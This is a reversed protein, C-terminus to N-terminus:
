PQSPPQAAIRQWGGPCQKVYPYYGDPNHCYYWDNSQTQVPAQPPNQEIYVPPAAPAVVVPPYPYSYPYYYYPPPYIWPGPAGIFVGFRAGHHFHGHAAAVGSAGAGLLFVFALALKGSKM